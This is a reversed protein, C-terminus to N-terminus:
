QFLMYTQVVMPGETRTLMEARCLRELSYARERWDEICANSVGYFIWWIKGTSGVRPGRLAKPL